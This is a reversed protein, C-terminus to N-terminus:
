TYVAPVRHKYRHHYACLMQGNALTTPGGLNWPRRHDAQCWTAPIECGPHRCTRDRIILAAKLAGTFFRTRRGMDIIRGEGDFVTRAMHGRFAMYLARDPSIPTGDALTCRSDPDFAADPDRPLGCFRQIERDLTERDVIVNVLPEGTGATDHNYATELALEMADHRRQAPTRGLLELCVDDGHIERAAQWDEIFLRREFHRLVNLIVGGTLTDTNLDMAIQDGVRSIYLARNKRVREADAQARDPDAYRLWEVLFEEFRAFSVTRAKDLFLHTDRDFLEAINPRWLRGLLRAHALDIEGRALAEHVRPIHLLNRAVSVASAAHGVPLHHRHALWSTPARLGQRRHVGASECAAVTALRAADAACKLRQCRDALAELDDPSLDGLDSTALRAAARVVADLQSVLGPPEGGPPLPECM